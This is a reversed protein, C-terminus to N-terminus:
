STLHSSLNSPAPSEMPDPVPVPSTRKVATMGPGAWCRDGYRHGSELWQIQLTLLMNEWVKPANGGCALSVKLHKPPQGTHSQLYSTAHNIQPESAEKSHMQITSNATWRSDCCSILSQALKQTKDGNPLGKLCTEVWRKPFANIRLGRPPIDLQSQSRPHWKPHPIETEESNGGAGTVIWPIFRSSFYHSIYIRNKSNM